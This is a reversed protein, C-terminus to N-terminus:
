SGTFTFAAWYYPHAFPRANNDGGHQALLEKRSRELQIYLFPDNDQVTVNQRELDALTMDRLWIQAQRLAIAPPLNDRLHYQYFRWILLTTSLDDVTWLTSVVGPVGGQLFGAPLGIYEDPIRRFETLGTECASLIVMRTVSLDLRAIIEAQTLPEGDALLLGSRIIEEWDYYGHCSFHLYTREPVAQIVAELTAEGEVLIYHAASEFFAAVVEGEIAAFILDATPNIVALLSRQHRRERERLRRYTVSLAYASPAYTVTYNDLFTHRDGDEEYWAAHLPLLGLRSQPMLIVSVSESLNLAVLRDHVPGMLTTWLQNTVKKITTHWQETAQSIMEKAADEEEASTKERLTEQAQKLKDQYTKYTPLWGSKDENGIFLNNLDKETFINLLIVHELGVTEAGYPVVFVASGQSTVLPAVLVGNPPILALINSLDLDTPMFDPYQIQIDEIVQKLKARTQRLLRGLEANSRRAPTNLPLRMENDLEDVVRRTSRIALQQAEPLTALNGLALTEAMLRTKGNELRLLAKNPQGLQLLCYAIRPYLRWTESVEAQRGPETHAIKFLEDGTEIADAYTQYAEPWNRNNFYLDGLNHLTLLRDAPFQELTRVTLALNYHEIAQKVNESRTGAIREAYTAGLNNQLISWRGPSAGYTWEKLAQKYHYIAQEINNSREGVIRESYAYGLGNQTMAWDNPFAERTYVELALKLHVIAEEINEARMKRIHELYDLGSYPFEPYTLGLYALGLNNQAMAWKTSFKERTYVELARQYHTIAEKINDVREGRLRNRYAEGLNNETEGWDDPYSERTRVKLAQEYHDIAQELNNAREERIRDGYITGLNNQIQAWLEPFDESTYVNLAQEYYEIAQELNEAREEQHRDAYANGLAVQTDAWPVPFTNRTYVELAQKYHEIAQEINNTLNGAPNKSLSQALEFQLIAWQEPNNDRDVLTLGKRCVEVRRSMDNPDTLRQMEELLEYLEDNVAVIRTTGREIETWELQLKVGLVLEPHEEQLEPYEELLKSLATESTVSFLRAQLQFMMEPSIPPRRPKTFAAEVGESRCRALLNRCKQLHDSVEPPDDRFEEILDALIQDAMDTLLEKRYVDVVLQNGPYPDVNNIFNVNKLFAKVATIIQEFSPESSPSM